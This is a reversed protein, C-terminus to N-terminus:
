RSGLVELAARAEDAREDDAGDLVCSRLLAADAVGATATAATDDNTEDLEGGM